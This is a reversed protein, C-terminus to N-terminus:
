PVDKGAQQRRLYETLIPLLRAASQPTLDIALLEGPCYWDEGNSGRTWEAITLLANEGITATVCYSADISGDIISEIPLHFAM